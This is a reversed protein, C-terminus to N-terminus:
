RVRWVAPGLLRHLWDGELAWGAAMLAAGFALVAVVGGWPVRRENLVSWLAWLCAGGVLVTGLVWFLKLALVPMPPGIRLLLDQAMPGYPKAGAAGAGSAALLTAACSRMPM